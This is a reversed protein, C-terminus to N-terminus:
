RRIWSGNDSDSDLKAYYFFSKRFFTLTGSAASFHEADANKVPSLNLGVKQKGREGQEERSSHGWSTSNVESHSSCQSYHKYYNRAVTNSWLKGAVAVVIAGCAVLWGGFTCFYCSESCFCHHFSSYIPPFSYTIFRRQVSYWRWGVLSNNGWTATDNQLLANLKMTVKSGNMRRQFLQPFVFRLTQKINLDHGQLSSLFHRAPATKSPISLLWKMTFVLVVSEPM